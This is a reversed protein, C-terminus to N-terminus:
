RVFKSMFQQHTSSALADTTYSTSGKLTTAFRKVSRWSKKKPAETPASPSADVTTSGKEERLRQLEALLADSDSESDSESEYNPESDSNSESKSGPEDEAVIEAVDQRSQKVTVKEEVDGGNESAVVKTEHGVLLEDLDSDTDSDYDLRLDSAKEEKQRKSDPEETDREPSTQPIDLRFKLQSHGKLLRAHQISDKISKEYGRKGELTPRHNM